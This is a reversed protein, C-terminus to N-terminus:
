PLGFATKLDDIAADPISHVTGLTMADYVAEASFEAVELRDFAQLLSDGTVIVGNNQIMIVPHHEALLRTITDYDHIPADFRVTKLDRLLIYAEPIIRSDFPHQAVNFAMLTPPHAIIIAEIGPNTSYVHEHLQVSRSPLKGSERMGQSVLVLDRPELYMRDYGYPTILFSDGNVRASFTGETSTFLHQRCTRRIIECMKSRLEKERALHIGPSFEPLENQKHKLQAHEYSTITRCSGLKSAKIQIRAAYDLTEFQMFARYLDEAATVTGHNELVVTNCGNMFSLAIKDGLEQSGPLAYPVFDVSGVITAANPLMQTDPVMGAVSFAVLAPPHAHLVARLDPRTKFLARHFPYESSPKHPGHVSGDPHVAIIDDRTLRGKDIGGPTIWLIGEDDLVSINGGSTTTMRYTYIREMIMVIQDRPHLLSFKTDNYQQNMEETNYRTTTYDARQFIRIAQYM